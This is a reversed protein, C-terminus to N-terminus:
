LKVWQDGDIYNQDLFPKAEDNKLSRAWPVRQSLNAGSGTNEFEGFWVTGRRSPDGWDDWGQPLIIGDIQCFSYVVRAYRGWARGLYVLGSGTVKCDTFSFGSDDSPSSRQSAAIAGYSQAVAHLECGQYLSRASGFIFDISGEIYCQKFLHRGQHDFLTDQNGLIRCRYLVAKDGSLRLAVAQMGVAGPQAAQATNKFTIGNACFYDAEVAVSASNLTGITQGNSLLDSAQSNWAIVTESSGKSIFSIYPKTSPVLVKERYVGPSIFIKVRQNNGHPVLDVAGQVTVSDGNGDKSVSIVRNRLSESESSVRDNLVLDNWSILREDQQLGLVTFCLLFLILVHLLDM